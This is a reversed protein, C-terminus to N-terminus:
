CSVHMRPVIEGGPPLGLYARLVAPHGSLQSPSGAAVCAGHDLAIIHGALMEAFRFDQATVLLAIGDGAIGRLIDALQTTERKSLGNAPEDMCILRPATAIARAIEVRRQLAPSLEGAVRAGEASLGVRDLWHRAKELARRRSPFGFVSSIVKGTGFRGNQAVVINDLVTMSAFLRPNRFTRVVHADRAIRSHDMRELLFPARRGAHLEIRGTLPRCLGTLCNLVSTKGAGEPGVLATIQGEPAVFCLDDVATICGFVLSLHQVILLPKKQTTM